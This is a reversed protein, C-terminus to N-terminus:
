SATLRTRLPRFVSVALGSDASQTRRQADSFASGARYLGASSAMDPLPGLHALSWYRDVWCDSVPGLLGGITSASPVTVNYRPAVLLASPPFSPTFARLEQVSLGISAAEHPPSKVLALIGTLSMQAQCPSDGSNPLHNLPSRSHITRDGSPLLATSTRSLAVAPRSNSALLGYRFGPFGLLSSANVPPM